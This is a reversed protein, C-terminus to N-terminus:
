EAELILVKKKRKPNLNLIGPNEVVIAERVTFEKEEKSKYNPDHAYSNRDNYDSVENEFNSKLVFSYFKSFYFMFGIMLILLFWGGFRSNIDNIRSELSKRQVRGRRPNRKSGNRKKSPSYAIHKTMEEEAKALFREEVMRREEVEKEVRKEWHAKLSSDFGIMQDCSPCSEEGMIEENTSVLEENCTPCRYHFKLKGNWSQKVDAQSVIKLSM